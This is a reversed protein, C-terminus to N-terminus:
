VPSTQPSSGPRVRFTYRAQHGTESIDAGNQGWVRVLRNSPRSRIPAKVLVM